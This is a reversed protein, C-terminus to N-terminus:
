SVQPTFVQKLIAVFQSDEKAFVQAVHHLNYRLGVLHEPGVTFSESPLSGHTEHDIIWHFPQFFWLFNWLYKFQVPFGPLKGTRAIKKGSFGLWQFSQYGIAHYRNCRQSLSLSQKHIMLILWHIDIFSDIIRIGHLKQIIVWNSGLIFWFFIVGSDHPTRFQGWGGWAKLCNMPWNNPYKTLTSILFKSICASSVRPYVPVYIHFICIWPKQKGCHLTEVLIIIWAQYVM